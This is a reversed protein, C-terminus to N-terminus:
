FSAIDIHQHVFPQYSHSMRTGNQQVIFTILKFIIWIFKFPIRGIGISTSVGWAFKRVWSAWNDKRVFVVGFILCCIQWFIFLSLPEVRNQNLTIIFIYKLTISGTGFSLLSIIVKTQKHVAWGSQLFALHRSNNVYYNLCSPWWCWYSPKIRWNCLNGSITEFEIPDCLNIDIQSKM